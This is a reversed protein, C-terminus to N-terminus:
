LAFFIPFPLDSGRNEPRIVGQATKGASLCPKNVDDHLPPELLLWLVYYGTFSVFNVCVRRRQSSVYGIGRSNM